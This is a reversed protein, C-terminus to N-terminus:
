KAPTGGTEPARAGVKQQKKLRRLAKMKKRKERLAKIRGADEYGIAEEDRLTKKASDEVLCVWEMNLMESGKSAVPSNPKQPCIIRAVQSMALLRFCEKCPARTVYCSAGRLPIGAAACAAVANAEAHCQSHFAETLATNISRCIIRTDSAEPSHFRRGGGGGFADIGSVVVCGMHGEMCYSNRAIRYALDMYNEDVTSAPKWAWGYTNVPLSTTGRAGGPSGGQGAKRKRRSACSGAEGEDEGRRFEDPATLGRPLRSAPSPAAM